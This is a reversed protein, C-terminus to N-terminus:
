QTPALTGFRNLFNDFRQQTIADLARQEPGGSIRGTGKQLSSRALTGSAPIFTTPAYGFQKIEGATALSLGINLSHKDTRTVTAAFNTGTALGWQRGVPNIQVSPTVGGILTTTFTVTDAFVGSGTSKAPSAGKSSSTSSTESGGGSSGPLQLPDDENLDIFTAIMENMGISGAVPYAFNEPKLKDIGCDPVTDALLRSFTESVLFTRINDRSFDGSSNLGVGVMGNTILRVPDAALAAKNEETSDLTFGFAIGTQIYRKFIELEKPSLDRNPDIINTWPKGLNASLKDTVFTDQKRIALIKAIAKLQIAVRTECRIHNVIAVIPLGIVDRGTPRISCAALAFVSILPVAAKVSARLKSGSRGKGWSRGLFSLGLFSRDFFCRDSFRKGKVGM